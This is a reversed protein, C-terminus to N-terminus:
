KAKIPKMVIQIQACGHQKEGRAEMDPYDTSIKTIEALGDKELKSAVAAATNIADGLALLELEEVAPKDGSGQIFTTAARTYFGVPKKATLKMVANKEGVPQLVVKEGRRPDQMMDQVENRWDLYHKQTRHFAVAEADKFVEFLVFKTPDEEQQLIDFRLANPENAAVGAQNKLTAEVFQKETGAKCSCHVVTTEMECSLDGGRFANVSGKGGHVIYQRRDRGDPALHELLWPRWETFHSQEKHAAAAAKTKYVEFLVYTTLDGETKSSFLDFRVNDAEKRSACVNVATREVFEEKGAKVTLWILAIDAAATM